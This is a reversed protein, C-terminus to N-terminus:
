RQGGMADGTMDEPRLYTNGTAWMEACSAVPRGEEAKIPSAGVREAGILLYRGNIELGRLLSIIEAASARVADRDSASVNGHRPDLRVFAQWADAIAERREQIRAIQRAARHIEDAEVEGHRKTIRRLVGAEVETMTIAGISPRELRQTSIPEGGAAASMLDHMHSEFCPSVDSWLNINYAASGIDRLARERAAEMERDAARDSAWDALGQALLIGLTIVVLEFFFLTVLGRSRLDTWAGALKSRIAAFM